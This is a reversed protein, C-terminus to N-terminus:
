FREMGGKYEGFVGRLVACIEGLTMNNRVCDIIAPMINNADAASGKLLQTSEKIKREDRRRRFGALERKREQQVRPSVKLYNAGAKKHKELEKFENVGVVIRQKSEVQKQYDYASASIEKQFYGNEIAKVGGGMADIKNIYEEASKALEDTLSELYYSGGCPDVVAPIGTEHALLQQTRLAIKVSQEAPLALAEDRSNTHLSQTGGLVAALAQYAVRTVNNDSQQATLTCGATQTHFRLMMARPDTAKFREKMIKAWLRRAARFKAIEEVINNHANFFFSIRKGVENVDLGRELAAKMYTTGNSLTFGIEQAATSGAERIHYGSVSIFNWKPLHKICYEIIDIVLRLSPEPPFIYAGRAIYEKLIDNQVTGSLNDPAIGKEGALVLYMALIVPCSANITMSVSVKDLPIESYLMRLDALTSIAVGTKGVEGDSLRDDSDYGMQTPLDFAVSLGTQGKALLFRYRKNTEKASGYGSYQRMTWLRGQYMTPHVGRTFPYEGPAGLNYEKDDSRYVLKRM